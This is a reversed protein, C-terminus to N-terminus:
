ASVFLWIRRIREVLKVQAFDRFECADFFVGYCRPCCEFHLHPQQEFVMRETAVQCRPCLIHEVADLMVGVQRDGVDLLLDAGPEVRLAEAEQYDFWLGTCSTCRDVPIGAVEVEQMYAGCKPCILSLAPPEDPTPLEVTV